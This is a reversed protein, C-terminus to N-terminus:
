TKNRELGVDISYHQEASCPPCVGGAVPVVFCIAARQRDYNGRYQDNTFHRAPCELVLLNVNRNLCCM